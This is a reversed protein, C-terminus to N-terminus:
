AGATLGTGQLTMKMMQLALITGIKMLLAMAM